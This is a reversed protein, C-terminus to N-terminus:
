FANENARLSLITWDRSTEKQRYSRWHKKKASVDSQWAEPSVTDPSFGCVIFAVVVKAQERQKREADKTSRSLCANLPGVDVAKPDEAWPNKSRAAIQKLQLNSIGKSAIRKSPARRWSNKGALKLCKPPGTGGHYIPFIGPDQFALKAGGIKVRKGIRASSKRVALPFGEPCHNSRTPHNDDARDMRHGM